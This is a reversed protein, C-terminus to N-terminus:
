TWGHWMTLSFEINKMGFGVQCSSRRTQMNGSIMTNGAVKTCSNADAPRDTARYRGAGVVSETNLEGAPMCEGYSCQKAAPTTALPPAGRCLYDPVGLQVPSCEIQV